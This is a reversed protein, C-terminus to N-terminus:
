VTTVEKEKAAAQEDLRKSYRDTLRQIEETAKFSEDETIKKDKELKKIADNGDRRITRLAVKGDESLKKVLKGMEERREKSLQPVSVRIIKGEVVPQLGLDSASIAKEVEKIQSADWPQIVILRPEPTSISALQILPTPTGYYLVRVTDLMASSARGTRVTAFERNTADLTKQMKGEIEKLAAQWM